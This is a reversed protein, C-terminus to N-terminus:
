CLTVTKRTGCGDSCGAKGYDIRWKRGGQREVLSFSFIKLVKIFTVSDVSRSAGAWLKPLFSRFKTEVLALGHIWWSRQVKPFKDTHHIIRVHFNDSLDDLLLQQAEKSPSLQYLSFTKIAVNQLKKVNINVTPVVCYTTRHMDPGILRAWKYKPM